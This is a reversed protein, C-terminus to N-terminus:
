SKVSSILIPTQCDPFCCISFLLTYVYGISSQTIIIEDFNICIGGREEELGTTGPSQTHKDIRVNRFHCRILMM